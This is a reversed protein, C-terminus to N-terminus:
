NGAKKDSRASSGAAVEGQPSTYPSTGAAQQLGAFKLRLGKHGLLYWGGRRYGSAVSGTKRCSSLARCEDFFGHRSDIEISRYM